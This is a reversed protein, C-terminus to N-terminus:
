FGSGYIKDWSLYQELDDPSVSSKVRSLAKEFDEILLPRVQNAEIHEIMNMDISRIPGLSAESCLNKIDAGSYGESRKAVSELHRDDLQHKENAILKKILELRAEYEPLPIYLRKVFRRRAAEDLEQPRNTAGIVLIREETETTAGDLQVLFETKIRRSSEHETDTRQSLLSDVEDIFIVSPQHVRAVTFLARVMKEGDGIWKSTLSSASISFFTSKSQSAVCKGILTKGTGPPGFLLIGKPPRRLGTFIDPRLMPWVVAEQIATKAFSLGAIDNWHLTAENDMIESQILEIMKPEIHKLRDDIEISTEDQKVDENSHSLCPSIFKSNVNRRHGLKRKTIQTTTGYKKFNQLDLEERATKFAGSTEKGIKMDTTTTKREPYLIQKVNRNTVLRNKFTDLFGELETKSLNESEPCYSISETACPLPKIFSKPNITGLKSKFNSSVVNNSKTLLTKLKDDYITEDNKNIYSELKDNILACINENSLTEPSAKVLHVLLKRLSDSTNADDFYIEHHVSLNLDCLINNEM